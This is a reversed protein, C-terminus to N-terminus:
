NSPSAKWELLLDKLSPYDAIALGTRTFSNERFTSDIGIFAYEKEQTSADFLIPVNMFKAADSSIRIPITTHNLNIWDSLKQWDSENLVYKGNHWMPLLLLEFAGYDSALKKVDDLGALTLKNVVTNIGFPIKDRLNSLNALLPALPKKRLKSYIPEVGDISIRIFSINGKLQEILEFTLLHGHTTISIGLGTENWLTKCIYPLDPHLTPEGGGFAIDFTGLKDLQKCYEIIREKALYQDQLNVYCYSCSFDCENTIAISMTRPAISFNSSATKIEDFLIHTGSKRCYYHIGEPEIRMKM